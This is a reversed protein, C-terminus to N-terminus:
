ESGSRDPTIVEGSIKTLLDDVTLGRKVLKGKHKDLNNPDFDIWGGHVLHNRKDALRRIEQVLTKHAERLELTAINRQGLDEFIKLRLSFREPLPASKEVLADSKALTAIGVLVLYEICGFNM